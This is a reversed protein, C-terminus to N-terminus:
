LYQGSDASFILGYEALKVLCDVARSQTVPHKLMAALTNVLPTNQLISARINDPVRMSKDTDIHASHLPRDGIEALSLLIDLAIEKVVVDPNDLM